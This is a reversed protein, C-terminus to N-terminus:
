QFDDQGGLQGIHRGPFASRQDLHQMTALGQGDAEAAIARDRTRPRDPFRGSVPWSAVIHSLSPGLHPDLAQVRWRAKGATKAANRFRGRGEVEPRLGVTLKVGQQQGLPDRRPRDVPGAFHAPQQPDARGRQPLEAFQGLMRRHFIGIGASEIGKQDPAM